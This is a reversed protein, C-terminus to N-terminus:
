ISKNMSRGRIRRLLAVKTAWNTRNGNPVTHHEETEYFEAKRFEARFFMAYVAPTQDSDDKSGYRRKNSQKAMRKTIKAGLKLLRHAHSPAMDEPDVIELLVEFATRGASDRHNLGKSQTPLITELLELKQTWPLTFGAIWHLVSTWESWDAVEPLLFSMYTEGSPIRAFIDAGHQVLLRIFDVYLTAEVENILTPPPQISELATKTWRPYEDFVWNPDAEADLLIKAMTPNPHKGPFWGAYHLLPRGSKIIRGPKRRLAEKVYHQMDHAVAFALFTNKWTPDVRLAVDPWHDKGKSVKCLLTNLRDLLDFCSAGKSHEAAMGCQLVIDESKLSWGSQVRAGENLNLYVLVVQLLLIYGNDIVMQAPRVWDLLIGDIDQKLTESDTKLFDKVTQHLFQVTLLTPIVAHDANQSQECLSLQHLQQRSDMDFDENRGEQTFWRELSVDDSGSTSSSIYSRYLREKHMLLSYPPQIQVLGGTADRIQRQLLEGNNCLELFESDSISDRNNASSDPALIRLLVGIHVVTVPRKARLVTELIAYTNRRTEPPTNNLIALFFEDMERNPLRLVQRRISTLLDGRELSHRVNAVVLRVWLFVGQARDVIITCIDQLEETNEISLGQVAPHLELREQVYNQIDSHTWDHVRLGSRHKLRVEFANDPRSSACIKFRGAGADVSSVLKDMFEVIRDRPTEERDNEDLADIFFCISFKVVKQKKCAELAQELTDLTWTSEGIPGVGHQRAYPDVIPFLKEHEVLLTYLMAGLVGKWSRNEQAIRDTLFMAAYSWDAHRLTNVVEQSQCLFKMATSKGSGPLGQIWFIGHENALWPLLGPGESDWRLIWSLTRHHATDIQHFRVTLAAAFDQLLSLNRDRVEQYVREMHRAIEPKVVQQYTVFTSGQRDFKCMNMHNADIPNRREKQHSIASSDPDVIKDDFGNVGKFGLTEQFSTVQLDKSDDLRKTFDDRLIELMANNPKLTELDNNSVSFGVASAFRSIILGTNTWLSGRHPTGFFLIANTSKFIDQLDENASSSEASLRLTSKVLIGGLSHVIFILGRGRCHGRVGALRSLLDRGRDLINSTNAPGAFFHTVRSDYGYTFVRAKPFDVALFDKPWFCPSQEVHTSTQSACPSSSSQKDSRKFVKKFFSKKKASSSHKDSETYTWTNKPHGQLGHIFVVDFDPTDGGKAIESLGYQSVDERADAM